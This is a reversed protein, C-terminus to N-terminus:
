RGITNGRNKNFGRRHSRNGGFAMGGLMGGAGFMYARNSASSLGKTMKILSHSYSSGMAGKSLMGGRAAANIMGRRGFAMGAGGVAGALAGQGVDGGTMYSGGAGAAAGLGIGAMTGMGRAGAMSPSAPSGSPTVPNFPVSSSDPRLVGHGPKQAPGPKYMPKGMSSAHNSYAGTPKLDFKGGRRQPGATRSGGANYAIDSAKITSSGPGINGGGALADGAGGTDGYMARKLASDDPAGRSGSSFQGMPGRAEQVRRLMNGGHAPRDLLSPDVPPPAGAGLPHQGIDLNARAGPPMASRGASPNIWAGWNEVRRAINRAGQIMSKKFVQAM